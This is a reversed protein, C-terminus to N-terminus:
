KREVHITATEFADLPYVLFGQRNMTVNRSYVTYDEAMINRIWHDSSSHASFLTSLRIIKKATSLCIGVGSGYITM